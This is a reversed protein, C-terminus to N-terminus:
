KNEKGVEACTIFVDKAGKSLRAASCHLFPGTCRLTEGEGCYYLMAIGVVFSFCSLFFVPGRQRVRTPLSSYVDEAHIHLGRYFEHCAEEGKWHLHKLLEALRVKTPISLNRFKHAEKDILIQPYIRNLQLVLRDVLETDMRPDSCLFQADRQLQEHYCDIDTM